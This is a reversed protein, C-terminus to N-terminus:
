SKGLYNKVDKVMPGVEKVAQKLKDASVDLTKSWYSVEHDQNVNIRSDDGKGTKSLDDPM